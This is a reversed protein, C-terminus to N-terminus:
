ICKHTPKYVYQFFKWADDPNTVKEEEDKSSDDDGNNGSNNPDPADDGADKRKSQEEEDSSDDGKKTYLDRPKRKATYAPAQPERRGRKDPTKDYVTGSGQKKTSIDKDDQSGASDENDSAGRRNTDEAETDGFISRKKALDEANLDEM